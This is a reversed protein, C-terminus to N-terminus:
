ESPPAATRPAPGTVARWGAAAFEPTGPLAVQPVVTPLPDPTNVWDGAGSRVGPNWVMLVSMAVPSSHEPGPDKGGRTATVRVLLSVQVQDRARAHWQVAITETRLAAGEPLEGEAPLGLTERWGRTTADAAERAADQQDPPAYLTAAQRAQEVDLTWAAELAAAAASAAGLETRPFGVPYGAEGHYGAPSALAVAAPASAPPRAPAAPGEQGPRLLRWGAAAAVILGVVTLVVVLRRRSARGPPGLDVDFVSDEAVPPM